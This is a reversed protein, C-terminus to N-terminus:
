DTTSKSVQILETDADVIQNKVVYVEDVIGSYPALVNNEMKMAEVIMLIQNKLVIDGKNVNLKIVKGPMPSVIKENSNVTDQEKYNIGQLLKDHRFGYFAVSQIIIHTKGHNDDSAFFRLDKDNIKIKWSQNEFGLFKVNYEVKEILFLTFDNNREPIEIKLLHEDIFVNLCMIIRWYGISSWVDNKSNELNWDRMLLAIAVWALPIASKEATIAHSIDPMVRECFSTSINNKRFDNHSLIHRLFGTNNKIGQIHYNQLASISADIASERNKDWVILKAIMPDYNRSILSPGDIGADIRINEGKPISYLFINGPSPIFGNFPDEAYVRCEIAHGKQTVEEQQLSLTYGSAIRIQEEVIDVGTVMETVPHEVQIRTNMELFYYNLNKDVLFEITGAGSYAIDKAIKVAANSMKHRIEDTLSVSPSEEIIKQYRRQITCEREFLHIVNGHSDGLIQIEIHRPNEIYQEIYISEDGFYAMAERSTSELVDPLDEQYHVIRMGKGGGGAAAKVLIPMKLSTSKKLLEATNGTIGETMPIGSKKAIARAAIKNGMAKIAQSTPGIFVLGSDSCAQAFEANESLFGYGPHIADCEAKHAIQIIRKINLYTQSLSDGELLWSEDAMRVHLAGAEGREYVAVTKINMKRATQIIRVAIEARNAILIKSIMTM